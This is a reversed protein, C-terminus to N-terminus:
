ALSIEKQAFKDYKIPLDLDIVSCMLIATVVGVGLLSNEVGFIKSFLSVFIIIGIILILNGFLLKFSLKKNKEM